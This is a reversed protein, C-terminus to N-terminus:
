AVRMTGMVRSFAAGWKSLISATSRLPTTALAALTASKSVFGRYQRRRPRPAGGTCDQRLRVTCWFTGSRFADRMLRADCRDFV